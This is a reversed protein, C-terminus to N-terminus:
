TTSIITSRSSANMTPAYRWTTYSVVTASRRISSSRSCPLTICFALPTAPPFRVLFHSSRRATTALLDYPCCGLLYARCVARDTYKHRPRTTSDDLASTGMLEAIMARMQDTASMKGKWVRRRDRRNIVQGYVSKEDVKEKPVEACFLKRRKISAILANQHVYTFVNSENDRWEKKVM